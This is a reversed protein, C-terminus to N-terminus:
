TLIKSKMSLLADIYNANLELTNNVDDANSPDWRILKEGSANEKFQSHSESHTVNECLLEKVKVGM